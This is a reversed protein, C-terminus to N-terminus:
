QINVIASALSAFRFPFAIRFPLSLRHRLDDHGRILRIVPLLGRHHQALAHTTSVKLAVMEGGLKDLAEAPRHAIGVLDISLSCLRVSRRQLVPPPTDAV